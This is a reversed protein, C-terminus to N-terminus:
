SLIYSFIFEILKKGLDKEFVQSTEFDLIENLKEFEIFHNSKLLKAAKKIM